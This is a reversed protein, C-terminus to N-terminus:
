DLTGIESRRRAEREVNAPKMADKVGAVVADIVQPRLVTDGITALVAADVNEMRIVLNNRCVTTGRKQYAICGEFPARSRGKGAGRTVVGLGGGCVACRAFGPLVSNSGHHSRRIRRGEVRTAHHKPAIPARREAETLDRSQRKGVNPREDSNRVWSAAAVRVWPCHHSRM